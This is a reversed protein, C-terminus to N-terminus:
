DWGTMGSVELVKLSCLGRPTMKKENGLEYEIIWWWIQNSFDWFITLDVEKVTTNRCVRVQLCLLFVFSSHGQSVNILVFRLCARM